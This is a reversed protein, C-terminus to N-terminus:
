IAIHKDGRLLNRAQIFIKYYYPDIRPIFQNRGVNIYIEKWPRSSVDYEVGTARVEEKEGSFLALGDPVSIEVLGEVEDVALNYEEPKLDRSLLFVHCFERVTFSGVAGVDIKVGLYILEDFSVNIGIEEAIERVGDSIDEGSKYHGAASIDLANPFITKDAGRKQFLVYGPPQPRIIWCHISACWLGKERAESKLATGKPEYNENYIDVREDPM